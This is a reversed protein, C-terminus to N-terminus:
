HLYLLHIDGDTGRYVVDQNGFIYAFPDGASAPAGTLKSLDAFAWQTGSGSLQYIDSNTSKYVTLESGSAYGFPDGTALPAGALSTLDTQVWQKNSILLQHVHNDAGRYDMIQDGFVYGTADSAAPPAGGVMTSIDAQLWQGNSTYIQHIGNDVARFAIIQHTPDRFYEFPDGASLPAKALATLDTHVWQGSSNIWLQHIHGDTGKYDVLQNGAADGPFGFPDGAAPPAGALRSLDLHAWQTGNNSLQHIDNDTGTYVVFQAANVFGSPNGLALPANTLATLDVQSWSGQNGTAFLQHVHNDTGRYVVFQSGFVYGAPDGAAPPATAQSSIDIHHWVPTPNLGYACVQLSDTAVYVKGNVVTPPCFKAFNGYDDRSLNQGSDWLEKAVNTADFAYLKGHVTNSDPDTLPITAWVIGTGTVSQNSSISLVGCPDGGTSSPTKVRSASAFPLNFKGATFNYTFAKLSDNVGWVYLTPASPNNWFVPSGWLGNDAQFEQVVRDSTPQLKGMDNTNVVYLIGQKGGGVIYATGPIAVAGGSGIETDTANLSDYNHAKFYDLVSLANGSLGLKLFSEGYDGVSNETAQASNGTILYINNNSDAVLGQGSMWIAGEGGNPTTNYTALQQLNAASYALVWGHYPPQDAYGAFAMYVVGNVLTLASRQNETAAVFLVHGAGDNPIASGPYQAVIQIPGGLKEAGQNLIDLAHLRFIQVSNEYTKAVVYLTNTGPDIVPTSIIGVEILINTDKIVSEPVPTGLSKQWLQAGTDADFAYVSDHATAVFLVNHTSGLMKVNPLYLPQAFVFGDVPMSFLKGFTSVNVNSTNLTVENLNAGTRSNDNHQTLVRVQAWGAPVCLRMLFTLCFLLRVCSRLKYLTIMVSDYCIALSNYATLRKPGSRTPFLTLWSRLEQNARNRCSSLGLMEGLVDFGRDSNPHAAEIHSFQAHKRKSPRYLLLQVM